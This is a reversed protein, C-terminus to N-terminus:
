GPPPSNTSSRHSTPSKPLISPAQEAGIGEVQQMAEADAARLNDMIAFYRAIRRSM